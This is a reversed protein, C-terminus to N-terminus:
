SRHELRIKEMRKLIDERKKTIAKLRTQPMLNQWFSILKSLVTSVVCLSCMRNEKGVVVHKQGALSITNASISSVNLQQKM